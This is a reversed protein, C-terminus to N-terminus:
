VRVGLEALGDPAGRRGVRSPLSEERERVGSVLQATCRDPARTRRRDAGVTTSARAPTVRDARM